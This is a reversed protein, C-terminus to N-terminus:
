LSFFCQGEYMSVTPLTNTTPVTTIWPIVHVIVIATTTLQLQSDTDVVDSVQILLEYTTPDYIGDM